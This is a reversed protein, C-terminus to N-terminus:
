IYPGGTETDQIPFTRSVWDDASSTMIPQAKSVIAQQLEYSQRKTYIYAAAAIAVSAVVAFALDKM